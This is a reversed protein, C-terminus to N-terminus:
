LVSLSTQPKCSVQVSKSAHQLLLCVLAWKDIHVEQGPQWRRDLLPADVSDGQRELGEDLREMPLTNMTVDEQEAYHFGPSSAGALPSYIRSRSM